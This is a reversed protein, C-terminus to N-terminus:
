KKSSRVTASGRACPAGWNSPAGTALPPKARRLRSFRRNEKAALNAMSIAADAANLHCQKLERRRKEVCWPRERCPLADEPNLSADLSRRLALVRNKFHKEFSCNCHLGNLIRNVCDQIIM